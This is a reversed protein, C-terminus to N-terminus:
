GRHLRKHMTNQRGLLVMLFLGLPDSSIASSWRYMGLSQDCTSTNCQICATQNRGLATMMCGKKPVTSYVLRRCWICEGYRRYFGDVCKTSNCQVVHEMSCLECTLIDGQRVPSWVKSGNKMWTYYVQMFVMLPFGLRPRHYTFM